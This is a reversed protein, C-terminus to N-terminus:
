DNPNLLKNIRAADRHAEKIEETTSNYLGYSKDARVTAIEGGEGHGSWREMVVKVRIDSM